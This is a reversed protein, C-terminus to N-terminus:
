ILHTPIHQYELCKNLIHDNCIGCYGRQALHVQYDRETDFCQRCEECYSEKGHEDQFHKRLTQKNKSFTECISCAHLMYKFQEHVLHIHQYLESQTGFELHCLWCIVEMKSGDNGITTDGRQTSSTIQTVIKDQFDIPSGQKILHQILGSSDCAHIRYDEIRNFTKYCKTCHFLGSAIGSHKRVHRLFSDEDAFKRFCYRCVRPSKTKVQKPQEGRTTANASPIPTISLKSTKKHVDKRKTHLSYHDLASESNVSKQCM